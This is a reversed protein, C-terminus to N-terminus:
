DSGPRIESVGVVESRDNIGRARSNAGGLTGLNRM